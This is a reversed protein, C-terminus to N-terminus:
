LEQFPLHTQFPLPASFGMHVIQDFVLHHPKQRHTLQGQLSLAQTSTWTPYRLCTDRCTSMATLSHSLSCFPGSAIVQMYHSLCKQPTNLIPSLSEKTQKCNGEDNKTLSQM